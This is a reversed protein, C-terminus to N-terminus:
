AGNRAQVHQLRSSKNRLTTWRTELAGGKGRAVGHVRYFIVSMIEIDFLQFRDEM